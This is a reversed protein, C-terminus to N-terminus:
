MIATDHRHRYLAFWKAAYIARQDSKAQEVQLIPLFFFVFFEPRKEILKAKM